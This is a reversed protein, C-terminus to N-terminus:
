QDADAFRRSPTRYYHVIHPWCEVVNSLNLLWKSLLFRHCVHEALDTNRTAHAACASSVPAVNRARVPGSLFTASSATRGCFPRFKRNRGCYGISMPIAPLSQTSLQRSLTSRDTRCASHRSTNKAVALTLTTPRSPECCNKSKAPLPQGRAGPRSDPHGRNESSARDACTNTTNEV